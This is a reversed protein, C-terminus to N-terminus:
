TSEVLQDYFQILQDYLRQLQDKFQILQDYFRQLQDNFGSAHRKGRSKSHSILMPTLLAREREWSFYDGYLGAILLFLGCVCTEGKRFM